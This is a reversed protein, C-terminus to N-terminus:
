TLGIGALFACLRVKAVDRRAINSWVKRQAEELAALRKQMAADDIKKARKLPPAVDGIEYIMSASLAPSGPLSAAPTVDGAVSGAASSPGLEQGRLALLDGKRRPGGKRRIKGSVPDAALGSPTLAGSGRGKGKGSSKRTIAASISEEGAFSRELDDIGDDFDPELRRKKSVRGSVGKSVSLGEVDSSADSHSPHGARKRHHGEGLISEEFASAADEADYDRRSRQRGDYDGLELGLENGDEYAPSV